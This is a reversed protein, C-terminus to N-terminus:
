IKGGVGEGVSDLLRNKVDTDRRSDEALKKKKKLKVKAKQGHPSRPEGVLSQVLRGQMPACLRLWQAAGSTGALIKSIKSETCELHVDPKFEYISPHAQISVWIKKTDQPSVHELM